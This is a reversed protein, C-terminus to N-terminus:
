EEEYRSKFESEVYNDWEYSHTNHHAPCAMFQRITMSGSIAKLEQMCDYCLYGYTHSYYDCMVNECGQRDCALVGM